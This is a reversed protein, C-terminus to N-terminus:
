KVHLKAVSSRRRCAVDVIVAAAEVALNVNVDVDIAVAVASPEWIATRASFVSPGTFPLPFQSSRVPFESSPVSSPAINCASHQM